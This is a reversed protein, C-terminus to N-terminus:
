AAGRLPTPKFSNNPAREPDKFMRSIHEKVQSSDEGAVQQRFSEGMYGLLLFSLEMAESAVSEAIAALRSWREPTHTSLTGNVLFWRHVVTHRQELLANIRSELQPDIQSKQALAKILNKTPVKFLRYDSLQADTLSFEDETVIRMHYYALVLWQEFHQAALVAKGISANVNEPAMTM